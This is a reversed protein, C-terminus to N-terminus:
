GANIGLGHDRSGSIYRNADEREIWSNVQYLFENFETPNGPQGLGSFIRSAATGAVVESQDGDRYDTQESWTDTALEHKDVEDFAAAGADIDTFGCILWADANTPNTAVGAYSRGPYTMDPRDDWTDTGPTYDQVTDRQNNVDSSYCVLQSGAVWRITACGLTRITADTKTDWSDGGINYEETGDDIDFQGPAVGMAYLKASLVDGSIREYAGITMDQLDAWLNFGPDYSRTEKDAAANGRASYGKDGSQGCACGHLLDSAEARDAWTDTETDYEQCIDGDAAIGTLGGLIYFKEDVPPAPIQGAQGEKFHWIGNATANSELYVNVSDYESGTPNATLTAITNGGDDKIAIDFSASANTISWIPGGLSWDPIKTADPLTATAAATANLRITKGRGFVISFTTGSEYYGGGFFDEVAKWAM